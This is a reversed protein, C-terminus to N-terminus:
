SFRFNLKNFLIIPILYKIFSIDFNFFGIIPCLQAKSIKIKDLWNKVGKGPLYM